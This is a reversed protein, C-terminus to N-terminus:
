MSVEGEAVSAKATKKKEAAKARLGELTADGAVPLPASVVPSSPASATAAAVKARLEALEKEMARERDTGSASAGGHTHCLGGEVHVKNKCRGGSKTDAACQYGAKKSDLSYKSESTFAGVAMAGAENRFTTTALMTVMDNIVRPEVGNERLFQTALDIMTTVHNGSTRSYVKKKTEVITTM